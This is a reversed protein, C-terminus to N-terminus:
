KTVKELERVVNEFYFQWFRAQEINVTVYYDQYQQMITGMGQPVGDLMFTASNDCWYPHPEKIRKDLKM